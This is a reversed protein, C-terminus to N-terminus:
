SVNGRARDEVRGQRCPPEPFRQQVGFVEGILEGFVLTFGDRYAQTRTCLYLRAREAPMTIGDTIEHELAPRGPTIFATSSIRHRRLLM